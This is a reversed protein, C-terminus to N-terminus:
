NEEQAALVRNPSITITDGRELTVEVLAYYYTDPTLRRVVGREDGWITQVIVRDGVAFFHSKMEFLPEDQSAM